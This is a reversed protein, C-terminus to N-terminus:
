AHVPALAAYIAQIVAATDRLSCFETVAQSFDHSQNYGHRIAIVPLGAAYAADIGPKSDEIAVGMSGAIGLRQLALLYADPSPKAQRVDDASVRVRFFGSLKEKDLVQDLMWSRSSSVVALEFSRDVLEALLERVGPVTLPAEDLLRKYTLQYIQTYRDPDCSLKGQAMFAARVVDHPNGMLREYFAAPVSGGLRSATISHAEAKLQDTRVLVGDM